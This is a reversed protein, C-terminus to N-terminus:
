PSRSLICGRASRLLKKIRKIIRRTGEKTYLLGEPRCEEKQKKEMCNLFEERIRCTDAYDPEHSFEEIVRGGCTHLHHAHCAEAPALYRDTLHEMMDEASPLNLRSLTSPLWGSGGGEGGQHPLGQLDPNQGPAAYSHQHMYEGFGHHSSLMDPIAAHDPYDPAGVRGLLNTQSDSNTLQGNGMLNKIFVEERPLGESYQGAPVLDPPLQGLDTTEMMPSHGLFDGSFQGNRGLQEMALQNRLDKLLEKNLTNPSGIPRQPYDYQSLSPPQVPPIAFDPSEQRVGSGGQPFMDLDKGFLQHQSVHPERFSVGRSVEEEEEEVKHEEEEEEEEEQAAGEQTGVQELRPGVEGELLHQLGELHTSGHGRNPHLASQSIWLESPADDYDEEGLLLSNASLHAPGPPPPPDSATAPLMPHHPGPASDEWMRRLLTRRANKPSSFTWDPSRRHTTAFNHNANDGSWASCGTLSVWAVAAWWWAWM